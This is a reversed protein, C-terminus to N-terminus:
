RRTLRGYKGTESPDVGEYEDDGTVTVVRDDIFGGEADEVEYAIEGGGAQASADPAVGSRLIAGAMDTVIYIM